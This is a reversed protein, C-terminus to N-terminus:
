KAFYAAARKLIENETGLRRVERRLRVLEAQEDAHLMPVMGSVKEAGDQRLRGRGGVQLPGFELCRARSRGAFPRDSIRVLELARVRFERFIQRAM